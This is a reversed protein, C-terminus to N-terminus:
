YRETPSDQLPVPSSTRSHHSTEWTQETAHASTGPPPEKTQHSKADGRIVASIPDKSGSVTREPIEGDTM